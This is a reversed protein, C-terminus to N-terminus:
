YVRFLRFMQDILEEEKISQADAFRSKAFIVVHDYYVINNVYDNLYESFKERKEKEANDKVNRAFEDESIQSHAYIVAVNDSGLECKLINFVGYQSAVLVKYKDSRSLSRDLQCGYLKNEKGKAHYIIYEMGEYRVLVTGDSEERVIEGNQIIQSLDLYDPNPEFLEDEDGGREVMTWFLEQWTPIKLSIKKKMEEWEKIFRERIHPSVKNLEEFITERDCSCRFELQSIVDKKPRLRCIMEDEDDKEQRRVTYKPIIEAQLKGLDKIARILEDKGSAANGALIFTKPIDSHLASSNRRLKIEGDFVGRLINYLQRDIINNNPDNLEVENYEIANLVVKDFLAINEIYMRYIAVAKEYRASAEKESVNGRAAAEKHFDEIDPIKRFLFISLVQRPFEEKLEEVARIDNIVAFPTIGHNLLNKIENTSLAYRLGYTQYVLDCDDPIQDVHEVDIEKGKEIDALEEIRYDRTTKKKVLQSTFDYGNNRLQEAISKIKRLVTTKGSQSPGTITILFPKTKHQTM